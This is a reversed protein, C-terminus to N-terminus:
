DPINLNSCVRSQVLIVDSLGCVAFCELKKCQDAMRGEWNWEGSESEM